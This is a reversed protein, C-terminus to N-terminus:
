AKELTKALGTLKGGKATSTYYSSARFAIASLICKTYIERARALSPGWM